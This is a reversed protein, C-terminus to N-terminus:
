FLDVLITHINTHRDTHGTKVVRCSANPKVLRCEWCLLSTPPIPLPAGSAFILSNQSEQSIIFLKKVSDNQKQALMSITSNTWQKHILVANHM